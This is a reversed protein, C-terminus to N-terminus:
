FSGSQRAKFHIVTCGFMPINSHHLTPYHSKELFFCLSLLIWEAVSAWHLWQFLLSWFNTNLWCVFNYNSSTSQASQEGTLLHHLSSACILAECGRGCRQELFETTHTSLPSFLLIVAEVHLIERFIQCLLTLRMDTHFWLITDSLAPLYKQVGASETSVCLESFQM